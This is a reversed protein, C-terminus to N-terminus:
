TFREKAYDDFADKESFNSPLIGSVAQVAPPITDKAALSDRLRNFYGTVLNTLTLGLKTAYDQAFLLTEGPLRITMRADNTM